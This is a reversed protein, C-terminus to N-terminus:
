IIQAGRNSPKSFTVAIRGRGWPMGNRSCCDESWQVFFGYYLGRFLYARYDNPFRQVLADMEPLTWTCASASKEPATAGSNVFQAADAVNAHIAKDLDELAAFDEGNAHGVKARM